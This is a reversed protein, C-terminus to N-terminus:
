AKHAIVLAASFDFVTGSNVVKEYIEKSHSYFKEVQEAKLKKKYALLQPSNFFTLFEEYDQFWVGTNQHWFLDMKFGTQELFGKILDKKDLYFLDRGDFPPLDLEEITRDMITMLSNEKKQGMVSFALTGTPALVRNAETLVAKVDSVIHFCLNSHYLDLSHTEIFKLDELNAAEVISKVNEHDPCEQSIRKKTLEAMKDSIDVSYLKHKTHMKKLKQLIYITALGSGCGADLITEKKDFRSAILLSQAFNLNDPELHNAYTESFMNWGKRLQDATPAKGLSISFFSQPVTYKGLFKSTSFKKICHKLEIM